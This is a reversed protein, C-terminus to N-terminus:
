GKEWADLLKKVNAKMQKRTEPSADRWMEGMTDSVEMTHEIIRDNMDRHTQEDHTDTYHKKLMRYEDYLKGMETDDRYIDDMPYGMRYPAAPRMVRGQNQNVQVRGKGDAAGRTYGDRSLPNDAMMDHEDWIVDPLYPNVYPPWMPYGMRLHSGHGVNRGTGKRAFKGNTHRWNDYGMRGVEEMEEDSSMLDCILMEYYKKKMTYKAAEAMDKVMDAIEGVQEAHCAIYERGECVEGELMETLKKQIECLKNVEEITKHM